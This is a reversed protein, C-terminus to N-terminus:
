RIIAFKGKQHKGAQSTSVWIYVGSALKKGDDSTANWDLRDKGEKEELSRVLEGAKNYIKIKTFPLGAGFFSIQTHGRSPVFPSPTAFIQAAEDAAARTTFSWISGEFEGYDNRAIIQWCYQTAPDLLVPPDYSRITLDSAVPTQPRLEACPWLYVDFTADGQYSWQLNTSTMVGIAGDAPQPNSLTASYDYVYVHFWTQVDDHTTTIVADGSSLGHIMGEQSITAVSSDSSEYTTGVAGSTVNRMVGDAFEGYIQLLVSDGVACGWPGSPFSRLLEVSQTTYIEIGVSDVVITGGENIGWATVNLPGLVELPAQFELLFPSVSDVGVLEYGALVIMHDIDTATIEASVLEDPEYRTQGTPLTIEIGANSALPVAPPPEIIPELAHRVPVTTPQEHAIISATAISQDPSNLFKITKDIFRQDGAELNHGIEGPHSVTYDLKDWEPMYVGGLQSNRSVVWDSVDEGFLATHLTKPDMSLNYQQCHRFLPRILHKWGSNLINLQDSKSVGYVTLYRVDQGLNDVPVIASSSERMDALGGDGPRAPYGCPEGRQVWFYFFAANLVLRDVDSLQNWFTVLFDWICLGVDAVKSGYHPTGVTVIKRVKESPISLKAVLGGMSHCVLDVKHVVYDEQLPKLFASDLMRNVEAGCSELPKSSDYNPAAVYAWKENKLAEEMSAWLGGCSFIGHLMLVPVKFLTFQTGKVLEGDVEFSFEVPMLEETVADNEPPEWYAHWKDDGVYEFDEVLTGMGEPIMVYPQTEAGRVELIVQSEGDAAAGIVRKDPEAADLYRVAYPSAETYYMGFIDMDTCPWGYPVRVRGYFKCLLPYDPLDATGLALQEDAKFSIVSNGPTVVQKPKLLHSYLHYFDCPCPNSPAGEPAFLFMSQNYDFDEQTFVIRCHEALPPCIPDGSDFHYLVDVTLNIWNVKYQQFEEYEFELECGFTLDFYCQRVLSAGPLGNGQFHYVKEEAAVSQTAPIPVLGVAVVWLAILFITHLHVKM